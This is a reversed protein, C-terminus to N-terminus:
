GILLGTTMGNAEILPRNLSLDEDSTNSTVFYQLRMKCEYLFSIGLKVYLIKQM